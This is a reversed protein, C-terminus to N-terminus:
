HYVTPNSLVPSWDVPPGHVPSNPGPSTPGHVPSNPGPSTPGHVPSNPAPSTMGTSTAVPSYRPSPIYRPPTPPPSRIPSILPRWVVTAPYLADSRRIYDELELQHRHRTTM